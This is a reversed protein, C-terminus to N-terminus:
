PRVKKRRESGTLSRMKEMVTTLIPIPSAGLTQRHNDLSELDEYILLLTVTAAVLGDTGDGFAPTFLTMAGEVSRLIAVVILGIAKGYVGARSRTSDFTGRHRAAWRGAVWDAANAVALILWLWFFGDRLVTSGALILAAIWAAPPTAAIRQM